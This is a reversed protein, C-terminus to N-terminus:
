EKKSDTPNTQESKEGKAPVFDFFKKRIEERDDFVTNAIKQIYRYKRYLEDIKVNRQETITKLEKKEKEQKMDISELSIINNKLEDIKKVDFGNQDLNSSYSRAAEHILKAENILRNVSSPISIGIRFSSSVKQDNAVYRAFNKFIQISKTIKNILDDQERTLQKTEAAEINYRSQLGNTEDIITKLQTLYSDNIGFGSLEEKNVDAIEHVFSAEYLKQQISKPM